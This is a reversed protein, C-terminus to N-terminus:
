STKPLFAIGGTDAVTSYGLGSWNSMSQGISLIQDLKTTGFNLM